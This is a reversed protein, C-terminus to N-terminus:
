KEVLLVPLKSNNIVGRTVGGIRRDRHKGLGHRGMIILDYVKSDIMQLISRVPEGMQVQIQVSQWNYEPEQSTLKILQNKLQDKAVQEAKEVNEGPHAEQTKARQGQSRNLADYSSPAVATSSPGMQFLSAVGSQTFEQPLPPLVHLRTLQAQYRKGLSGAYKLAQWSTSSFDTCALIHKVQPLM